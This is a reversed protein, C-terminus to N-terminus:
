EDGAEGQMLAIRARKEWEALDREYQEQVWLAITGSRSSMPADPWLANHRASRRHLDLPGAAIAEQDATRQQADLNRARVCLDLAQSLLTRYTDSM